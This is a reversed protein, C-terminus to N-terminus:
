ALRRAQEALAFKALQTDMSAHAVATIKQNFNAALLQALVQSEGDMLLEIAAVPAQRLQSEFYDMSRQIELSLNDAIGMTLEDSKALHLKAFGRVRRQMMLEGQKIVTLLLEKDPLHNVVLHALSDNVSLNSFALEEISIGSIILGNDDCAIALQSLVNKQAVVVNLKGGVASSEFYDLHINTVPESVMDKVSWLLAQSLEDDAVNPKDATVLQYYHNALVIELQATGFQATIAAFAKSWDGDVCPITLSKEPRQEQEAQYVSLSSQAIFVGLTLDTNSTKWFSLKKLFGEVM